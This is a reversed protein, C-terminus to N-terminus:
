LAVLKSYTWGLFCFFVFLVCNRTPSWLFFLFRPHNVLLKVATTQVSLNSWVKELLRDVAKGIELTKSNWFQPRAHNVECFESDTNWWIEDVHCSQHLNYTNKQKWSFLWTNKRWVRFESSSINRNLTLMEKLWRNKKNDFLPQLIRRLHVEVEDAEVFGLGTIM